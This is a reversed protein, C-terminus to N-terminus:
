DKCIILILDGDMVSGDYDVLGFGMRKYSWVARGISAERLITLFDRHWNRRSIPDTHEIVGYEGCYLTAGTNQQFELAPFVYQRLVNSDMTTGALHQYAAQHQPARALFEDLDTYPGPYILNQDYERAAPTWRAKQHTFLLPEYFHFTYVVNEDDLLDLDKLTNVSCFNNSGIVIKRFPEIARIRNMAQQVMSNWPGSDPLNVENLLEFYLNPYRGVFRQAIEEWLQYFRESVSEDTFLPMPKMEEITDDFSYGPAKHLDFIVDLDNEECWELCSEIYDFGSEKYRFPHADDELVPYDVPMRIHDMGWSAIQRIDPATIFTQFHKHDYKRYQSIWGGLNVGSECFNKEM